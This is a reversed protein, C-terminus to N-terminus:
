AGRAVLRNALVLFASLRFSLASLALQCFTM